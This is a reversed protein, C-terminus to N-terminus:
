YELTELNNHDNGNPVRYAAGGIVELTGSYLNRWCMIEPVCDMSEADGVNIAPAYRLLEKRRRGRMPTKWYDAILAACTVACSFAGCDNVNQM